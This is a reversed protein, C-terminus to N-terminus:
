VLNFNLINILEEIEKKELYLNVSGNKNTTLEIKIIEKTPITLNKTMVIIIEDNFTTKIQTEIIENISKSKSIIM